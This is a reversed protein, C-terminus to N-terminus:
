VRERCSARGIESPSCGILVIGAAIEPPFDTATALLFGVSPMIIFQAGVGIAVSKPAKAVSVFDGVSMSTGMGFMILQILPTILVAFQFGNFEVFPAPYYLATTVAAFIVLTYSYGKLHNYNRFGIALLLFAIILLPGAQDLTGMLLM